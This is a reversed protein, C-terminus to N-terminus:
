ITGNILNRDLYLNGNECSTESLMLCAYCAAGNIRNQDFNHALCLPDNSCYRMRDRIHNLFKQFDSAIGILGGLTGDGSPQSTYLLIGSRINDKDRDRFFYVRERISSASYGSDVSLMNIIAHSLTHWWVFMPHFKNKNQGSEADFRNMWQDFKGGFQIVHDDPLDLFIGEGRLEIGPFWTKGNKDFHTSMTKAKTTDATTRTYGKQVIVTRLRQIPTVRLSGSPIEYKKVSRLDIEFQTKGERFESPAGYEAGRKLSKLETSMVDNISVQKDNPRIIESISSVIDEEDFEKIQGIQIQTIEGPINSNIEDFRKLLTYKTWYEPKQDAIRKKIDMESLFIYTNSDRPPITIVTFFSPIRLSSQSRLMVQMNVDCEDFKCKEPIYGSCNLPKDYVYKLSIKRSCKHCKIEVHELSIHGGNWEFVQNTCGTGQHLLYNWDIDDMHGNSCARIFRIAEHRRMQQKDSRPMSQLCETCTTHDDSDLHYLKKHELCLAWMPFRILKFLGIAENKGLSSNTPIKFIKAGELLESASSEEIVFHEDDLKSTLNRGWKDFAAIVYPGEPTEVISGVGYTLIFQSPRMSYGDTM